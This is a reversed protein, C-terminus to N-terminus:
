KIFNFVIKLVYKELLINSLTITTYFDRIFIESLNYHSINGLYNLAEKFNFKFEIFCKLNEM